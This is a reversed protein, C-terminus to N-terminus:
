RPAHPGNPLADRCVAIRERPGDPVMLAVPQVLACSLASPTPGSTRPCPLAGLSTVGSLNCGPDNCRQGSALRSHCGCSAESARNERDVTSIPYIVRFYKYTSTKSQVYLIRGNILGRQIDTPFYGLEELLSPLM